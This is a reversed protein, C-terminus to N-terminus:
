RRGWRRGRGFWRRSPAPPSRRGGIRVYIDEATERDVAVQTQGVQFVYSPATQLLGIPAGPAAGMALMRQVMDRRTGQLYAITGTQGPTLDALSSIVTGASRAGTRCCDGPPIPSGHPCAKPHGLLTCVQDDIGKRLIHEFRCAAETAQEEGLALVDTLLREALRERRIISAAEVEGAPTLSVAGGEQHVLGLDGLQALGAERDGIELDCGQRSSENRETKAVWLNALIEEASESLELDTM